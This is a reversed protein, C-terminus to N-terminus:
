KPKPKRIVVNGNAQPEWAVGIETLEHWKAGTCREIYQKEASLYSRGLCKLAHLRMNEEAFEMLARQYGDVARHIRWYRPWDSHILVRLILLTRRDTHSFALKVAQAQTHEGQRCALDLLLYGAFDRLELSSLPTKPHISYLLYRLAPQYSEWQRALISAQVMFMYARQAFADCRRSGSIGERLKRMAMLIVPLANTVETSSSRNTSPPGGEGCSPITVANLPAPSMHTNAM